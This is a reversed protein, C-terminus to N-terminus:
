DMRNIQKQNSLKVWKCKLYNGILLSKIRDNEWKTERNRGAKQGENGANSVKTNPQHETTSHAGKRM